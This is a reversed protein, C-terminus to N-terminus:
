GNEEDTLNAMLELVLNGFRTADSDLLDYSLQNFHCGMVNRAQAIKELEDLVPKILYETYVPTGDAAAGTKVEVRMVGRLKKKIAPLLEGLTYRGGSKRPVSCQYLQTLFDLAAELIVGAKACILQPDIPSEGLLSRLRETDPMSKTLTLGGSPCWKNLEIFHCQGDSLWGWRFKERWPRYHTTVITHQFIKTEKYLMEILREIHPEDISALIDDLVLITGSPNEMAALALFTCLGLTDLHSESFYAQPPTDTLGNFSAGIELSARRTPHLMLSINNLGEGPHVLEYLRGVEDAINALINDTFSKREEEMIKLAKKLVPLLSHLEVLDQQDTKYTSVAKKLTAIFKTNDQWTQKIDGWSVTLAENAEIWEAWRTHDELVGNDPLKVEDPWEYQECCVKFDDVCKQAAEMAAELKQEANKKSSAKTKQTSKARQLDKFENLRKQARDSLGDVNESSECLPCRDLEPHNHLYPTATELIRVIDGTGAAVSKMAADVQQEAQVLEESTEGVNKEAKELNPLQGKILNYANKLEELHQIDVSHTDSEENSKEEAWEYADTGPKGASEWFQEIAVSNKQVRELALEEDRQIAKISARLNNEASEISSVDIFKSIANYREAPKAEILSLIQSRRLVEAVPESGAPDIVVDSGALTATCVNGSSDQFEVKVDSKDKGQSPWYKHIGSGLGRNDLSGVKRKSLFEFADCITTKGTGNEGYVLTMSKGKQFPLTFPMVSGRLHEIKLQM